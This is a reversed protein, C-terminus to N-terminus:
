LFGRLWALATVHDNFLKTPMIPKNLGLFFNGIARGVPSSVILAAAREVSACEPGAFHLRAERSMRRMLGFDVLVPRRKGHCAAGILRVWERAEDLGLDAHPSVVAHVIGEDDLWVKGTPLESVQNTILPEMACAVFCGDNWPLISARAATRGRFTCSDGCPSRATVVPRLRQAYALAASRSTWALKIDKQLM